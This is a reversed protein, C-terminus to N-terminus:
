YFFIIITIFIFTNIDGYKTTLDLKANLQDVDVTSFYTTGSIDTIENIYFKDRKSNLNLQDVDTLYLRSSKSEINIQGGEELHLESYNINM